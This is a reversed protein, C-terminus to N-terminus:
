VVGKSPSVRHTHRKDPPPDFLSIACHLPSCRTRQSQLRISQYVALVHASTIYPAFYHTARQRLLHRSHSLDLDFHYKTWSRLRESANTLDAASNAEQGEERKAVETAVVTNNFPVIEVSHEAHFLASILLYIMASSVNVILGCAMRMSHNVVTM